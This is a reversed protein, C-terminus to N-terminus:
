KSERWNPNSMEWKIKKVLPMAYYAGFDLYGERFAQEKKTERMKHRYHSWLKGQQYDYTAAVRGMNYYQRIDKTASQAPTIFTLIILFLFLLSVLFGIRIRM